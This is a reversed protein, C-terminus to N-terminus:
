LNVYELGQRYMSAQVRSLCSRDQRRGQERAQVALEQWCGTLQEFGRRTDLAHKIDDAVATEADKGHEKLRYQQGEM